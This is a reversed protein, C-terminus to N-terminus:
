GRVLRKELSQIESIVSFSSVTKCLRHSPCAFVKGWCVVLDGRTGTTSKLLPPPCSRQGFRVSLLMLFHVACCFCFSSCSTSRAEEFNMRHDGAGRGGERTRDRKVISWAFKVHNLLSALSRQRRRIRRCRRLLKVKKSNIILSSSSLTAVPQRNQM